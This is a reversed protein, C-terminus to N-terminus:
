KKAKLKIVDVDRAYPERGRGDSSIAMADAEMWKDFQEHTSGKTEMYMKKLKAQVDNRTSQGKTELYIYSNLPIGLARAMEAQNYGVLERVNKATKVNM